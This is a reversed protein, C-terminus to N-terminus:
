VKKIKSLTKILLKRIIFLSEWLFFKFRHFKNRIFVRKNGNFYCEVVGFISDKDIKEKHLLADGRTILYDNKQILLRHLIYDGNKNIYFLVDHKKYGNKSSRIEVVTKKDIFFPYMSNGSVTLKVNNGKNLEEFIIPGIDRISITKNMMM